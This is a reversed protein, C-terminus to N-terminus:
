REFSATLSYRSKDGTKQAFIEIYYWGKRDVEVSVRERSSNRNYSTALPTQQDSEDYLAMDLNTMFSEGELEVTLTGPGSVRVKWWDTRNGANYDVTGKETRGLSLEAAEEPSGDGGSRAATGMSYWTLLQYEAADEETEAFVKVLYTDQGPLDITLEERGSGASRGKSLLDEGSRDYLELAVSASTERGILTVTLVGPGPPTIRWWDTRDGRGYDVSGRSGGNVPLAKAGEPDADPGSNADPNMLFRAELDYVARDTKRDAIVALYYVAGAKGDVDLHGSGATEGLAASPDPSPAGRLAAADYLRMRIEENRRTNLDVGIRGSASFPLKWWDTQDGYRYSVTDRVARELSLLSAGVPARDPGSFAEPDEHLTVTLEYPAPATHGQAFLKVLYDEDELVPVTLGGLRSRTVPLPRQRNDCFEVAPPPLAGRPAVTLTLLGTEPASLRWWTVGQGNHVQLLGHAITNLRLVPAGEPTPHNQGGPMGQLPMEVNALSAYLTSEAEDVSARITYPAADWLKPAM